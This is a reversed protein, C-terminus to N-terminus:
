DEDNGGEQLFEVMFKLETMNKMFFSDLSVVLGHYGGLDFAFQLFFELHVLYTFWWKVKKM